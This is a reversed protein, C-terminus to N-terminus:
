LSQVRLRERVTAARYRKCYTESRGYHLPGLAAGFAVRM